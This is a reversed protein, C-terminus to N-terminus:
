LLSFLLEGFLFRPTLVGLGIPSVIAGGDLNQSRRIFGLSLNLRAKLTRIDSFIAHVEWPLADESVSLPIVSLNNSFISVEFWNRSLAM